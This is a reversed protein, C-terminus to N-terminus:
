HGFMRGVLGWAGAVFGMPLGALRRVLGVSSVHGQDSDTHGSGAASRSPETVDAGSGSVTRSSGIAARRADLIAALDQHTPPLVGSSVSSMPLEWAAAAPVGRAVDDNRTASESGVDPNGSSVSTTLSAASLPEEVALPQVFSSLPLPGMSVEVSMMNVQFQAAPGSGQAQPPHAAATSQAPLPNSGASTTQAIHYAM